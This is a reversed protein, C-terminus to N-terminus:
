IRRRPTKWSVGDEYYEGDLAAILQEQTAPATMQSFICEAAKEAPLRKGNYYACCDDKFVIEQVDKATEPIRPFAVVFSSSSSNSVFGLRIKMGQREATEPIRPFAVVFSSSSSNSVFGLRIKM